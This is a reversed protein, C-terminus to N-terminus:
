PGSFNIVGQPYFSTAIFMKLLWSLSQFRTKFPMKGFYYHYYFKGLISIWGLLEIAFKDGWYENQKAEKFSSIPTDVLLNWHYNRYIVYTVSSNVYNLNFITSFMFICPIWSLILLLNAENHLSLNSIGNRSWKKEGKVLILLSIKPLSFTLM